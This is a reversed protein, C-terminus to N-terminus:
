KAKKLEDVEAKLEKVLEKLAVIEKALEVASTMAANGYAVSLFGDNDTLVAEPLVEQLSQASVGVQTLEEDVRDYVGVKVDALKEVFNETVSRWNKKKREDSFATVNGAMTLNGSMDMQLRNAAASWGGIRIVNDSDLGMNIAYIGGRHFAMIAGNGGTSYANMGIGAASGTNGNGTFLQSATWTYGAGVANSISSTNGANGTIAIPATGSLSSTLHGISAKRLFNDSGNTVMVQSVTPNETNGSSQNLYTAYLYGSADRYAITNGTAATTPNNFGSISAATGSTNQNGATNVGPLNINASGNFSVGGITRATQLVTASAANGSTNQNGSTNVGPLDINASGNFSVGGITRATQLVTATSANGSLAATITGASFNGSADRAVVKSATNTTTADVAFTRATSGNFTGGSTLYTGATLAATTASATTATAANGSTDQNGATNVGPLNINASGNFSVGGITRATQLITASGANGTTNQNLTPVDGAVIASMVVDTGDGRLYFGSTTAGALADMAAQRTTAGTGGNIIAVTGTVNGATGTTNQNFTPWTFTGTSFNGSQPTGLIPTVLSPSDSLVVNGSGTSSTVGTGGNAVPLTGSVHTTLGIKGWSPDAGIGGSILANGTAVDALRALSTTTNAYLLDGVAYSSQGTGGQTAGLVGSTVQSMSIAINTDALATLQGQANVTATLTKNAAGYSAATVATNTISFQTGALTLGTGASYIQASSIQAFTINTTGFTIVGSTNCTYTEGAGTTGQQVFFTSGEGLTDASTLGYTDTDSSRTLVWNTSGSGVSTVVYVGNQTQNTQEYVLVRDAVSVTVGDIVLAVQTGANTLTAGVGSSGNNYTANLNIPSEVRVPQHFHIGSSVLTDVYQKTAAQLATSPDQTLTVSDLGALTLSTEGLKIPTTGITVPINSYGVADEYIAKESPYTIFVDKTGASFTVISGSNSSALITDRSLTDTSTTYTGIGVEWENTTQGAICYYTTNGNGITSFAQYAGTAGDLAIAGTGTSVSTEKVRDKLVLAM